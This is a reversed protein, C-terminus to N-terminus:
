ELDNQVSHRHLMFHPQAQVNMLIRRRLLMAKSDKCILSLQSRGFHALLENKAHSVVLVVAGDLISTPVYPTSEIEIASLM